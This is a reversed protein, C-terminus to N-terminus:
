VLPNDPFVTTPGRRERELERKREGVEDEEEKRMGQM